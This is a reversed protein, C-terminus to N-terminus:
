FGEPFLNNKGPEKPWHEYENLRLEENLTPRPIEGSDIRGPLDKLAKRYAIWEEQDDGSYDPLVRFDCVGLKYNRQSRLMLMADPSPIQDLLDIQRQNFEETSEDTNETVEFIEVLWSIGDFRAKETKPDFSPPQVDTTNAPTLYETQSKPNVQCSVPFGSQIDYRIM